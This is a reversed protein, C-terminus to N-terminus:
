QSIVQYEDLVKLMKGCIEYFRDAEAETMNKCSIIHGSQLARKEGNRYTFTRVRDAEVEKFCATRILKSLTDTTPQSHLVWPYDDSFKARISVFPSHQGAISLEKKLMANEAELKELRKILETENM